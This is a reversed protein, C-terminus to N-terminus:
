RGRFPVVTALEGSTVAEVHRAWAQMAARKEDSFSHRQYVGVIGARTGSVHNLVAETVELRIGLRQLGTAVTRRIDHTVWPPVSANEARALEGMRADLKVKVASWSTAHTRGDSTFVFPGEVRHVSAILDRALNSLPM